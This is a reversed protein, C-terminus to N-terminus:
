EPQLMNYTGASGCCLHSEPIDTVEFGAAALLEKPQRVIRQGHQLSCASHYAVRHGTEIVPAKLGIQTILESIDKTISAVARAKDAYVPDARFMFGYDKVTTGCGSANVVIADLGSQQMERAWADINAKVFGTADQGLHHTL